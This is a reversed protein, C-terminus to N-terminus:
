GTQTKKERKLVGCYMWGKMEDEGEGKFGQSPAQLSLTTKRHQKLVKAAREENM